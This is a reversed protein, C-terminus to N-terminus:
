TASVLGFIDEFRLKRNNLYKIGFPRYMFRLRYIIIIYGSTRLAFVFYVLYKFYRGLSIILNFSKVKVKTRLNYLIDKTPLWYMKIYQIEITGVKWTHTPNEYEIANWDSQPVRYRSIVYKILPCQQIRFNIRPSYSKSNKYM